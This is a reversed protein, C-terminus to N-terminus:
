NSHAASPVQARETVLRLFYRHIRDDVTLEPHFAIGIVNGQQVAVIRGDPLTALVRVQPEASKVVPARIFVAHFPHDGIAPVPLDTEFSDVQRGFANRSVDIDLGGLGPLPEGDVRQASVIMGACTALVPLGSAVLSALPGLLGYETMLQRITTSEGGPVVIGDLGDLDRPLRVEIPEAGLRQLAQAHERFAGQLAVVGIRM